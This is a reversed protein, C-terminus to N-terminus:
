DCPLDCGADNLAQCLGSGFFTRDNTACIEYARECQAQSPYDSLLVAMSEFPCSSAQLPQLGESTTTPNAFSLHPTTQNYRLIEAELPSVDSITIEQAQASLGCLLFAGIISIKLTKM